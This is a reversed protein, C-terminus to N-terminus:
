PLFLNKLILYIQVGAFITMVITLFLILWQFKINTAALKTNSSVLVLDILGRIYDHLRGFQRELTDYETKASDTLMGLDDCLARVVGKRIPPVFFRVPIGIEREFPSRLRKMEIGLRRNAYSREDIILTREALFNGIRESTKTYIIELRKLDKVTYKLDSITRSLEHVDSKYKSIQWLRYRFWFVLLLLHLLSSWTKMAMSLSVPTPQQVQDTFEILVLGNYCFGFNDTVAEAQAVVTLHNKARDSLSILGGTNVNLRHLLKLDRFRNLDEESIEEQQFGKSVESIDQIKVTSAVLYLCDGLIIKKKFRSILGQQFSPKIFDLLLTRPERYLDRAEKADKAKKIKKLFKKSIIGRIYVTYAFPLINERVVVVKINEFVESLKQPCSIEWEESVSSSGIPWLFGYLPKPKEKRGSLNLLMNDLSKKDEPKFFDVILISSNILEM